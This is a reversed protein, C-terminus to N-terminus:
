TKAKENKELLLIILYSDTIETKIIFVEQKNVNKPHSHIKPTAENNMCIFGKEYLVNLYEETDSNIERININIDGTLIIDDTISQPIHWDLPVRLNRM